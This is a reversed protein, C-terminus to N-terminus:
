IKDHSILSPPNFKKSKKNETQYIDKSNSNTLHVSDEGIYRSFQQDDDQISFM